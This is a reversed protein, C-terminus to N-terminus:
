KAQGDVWDARKRGEEWAQPTWGLSTSKCGVRALESGVEGKTQSCQSSEQPGMARAVAIVGNPKTRYPARLFIYDM